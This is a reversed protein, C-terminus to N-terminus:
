LTWLCGDEGPGFGCGAGPSAREGPPPRFRRSADIIPAAATPEFMAARAGCEPCHAPAVRGAVVHGCITCLSNAFPAPM